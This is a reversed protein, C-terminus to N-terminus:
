PCLTATVRTGTAEGNGDKLDEVELTATQFYQGSLLAIRERGIQMGYSKTHKFSRSRMAKAQERGIGNDEITCQIGGPIAKLCIGLRGPGDTKHLLGHWIANEVYPQLILPPLRFFQTDIKEDVEIHYEFKNKFRMQEIELMLTITELEESLPVLEHKTSELVKRILLSFKDLYDVTKEREGKILYWKVSNFANFIFHPNMQARLASLELRSLQQEYEAKLARERSQRIKRNFYLWFGTGILVTLALFRFWATQWFAPTIEVPLSAINSESWEGAANSARWELTYGGPPIEGLFVSRENGLQVWSQHYGSLRYQFQIQDSAWFWPVGFNVQFSRNPYSLSIKEPARFVIEQDIHTFYSWSLAEMNPFRRDPSLEEPQIAYYGDLTGLLLGDGPLGGMTLLQAPLLGYARGFHSVSLDAPDV